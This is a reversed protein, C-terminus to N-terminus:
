DTREILISSLDPGSFFEKQGSLLLLLMSNTHEKKILFEPQSFCAPAFRKELETVLLSLAEGYVDSKKCLKISLAIEALIDDTAQALIRDITIAFYDTIWAYGEVYHEYFCSANIIIHTLIYLFSRFQARSLERTLVLNKNLFLDKVRKTAQAQTADIDLYALIFLSNITFSGGKLLSDKRLLLSGLNEKKIRQISTDFYQKFDQTHLNFKKTLFLDFLLRNILPLQPHKQYLDLRQRARYGYHIGSTQAKNWQRMELARLTEHFRPKSQFMYQAIVEKYAPNGTVKYARIFFHGREKLPLLAQYKQYMSLIFGENWCDKKVLATHM